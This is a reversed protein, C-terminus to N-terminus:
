FVWAGAEAEEGAAEGTSAWVPSFPRRRRGGYTNQGSFNAFQL